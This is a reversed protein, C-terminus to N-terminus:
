EKSGRLFTPLQFLSFRGRDLEYGLRWTCVGEFATVGATKAVSAHLALNNDLLLSYTRWILSRLVERKWVGPPVPSLRSGPAGPVTGRNRGGAGGPEGRSAGAVEHLVEEVVGEEGERAHLRVFADLEV